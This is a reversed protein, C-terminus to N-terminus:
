YVSHAHDAISNVAFRLASELNRCDCYGSDGFTVFDILEGDPSKWTICDRMYDDDDPHENGHIYFSNEKGQCGMYELYEWFIRVKSKSCARLSWRWNKDSDNIDEVLGRILEKHERFDIM